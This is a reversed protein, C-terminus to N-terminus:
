VLLLRQGTPKTALIVRGNQLAEAPPVAGSIIQRCNAPRDNALAIVHRHAALIAVQQDAAAVAIDEDATVTRRHGPVVSLTVSRLVWPTSKM